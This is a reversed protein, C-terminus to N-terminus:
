FKFLFGGQVKKADPVSRGWIKGPSFYGFRTHFSFWDTIKYQLNLDAEWGIDNSKETEGAAADGDNDHFLVGEGIVRKESAVFYTFNGDIDFSDTVQKMASVQFFTTNAFGAGANNGDSGATGPLYSDYGHIDNGYINAINFGNNNMFLSQFDSQTNDTSNNDGSGYGIAVGVRSHYSPLAYQLNGYGLWGNNNLRTGKTANFSSKGGYYIGELQYYFNGSSGDAALNVYQKEPFGSDMRSDDQIVYSLTVAFNEQKYKGFVLYADLDNDNEALPDSSVANPFTEGGKVLVGGITIPNFSKILKASDRITNVMIGHGVKAPLRGASFNVFGNYNLYLHRIRLDWNSDREVAPGGPASTVDISNGLIAGEPDSFDDGALDVSIVLSVQEKKIKATLYSRFDYFTEDTAASTSRGGINTLEGFKSELTSEIRGIGSLSVDLGGFIKKRLENIDEESELNFGYVLASNINLFLVSAILYLFIKKM